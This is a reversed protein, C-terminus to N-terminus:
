QPQQTILQYDSVHSCCIRWICLSISLSVVVCFFWALWGVSDGAAREPLVPRLPQKIHEETKDQKTRDQQIIIHAAREAIMMVTAHTNGSVLNPMISSDAVRLGQVGYVRLWSDVVYDSTNGTGMRATGALHSLPFKDCRSRRFKEDGCRIFERLESASLHLGPSLEKTIIPQLHTQNLIRRIEPIITYFAEIEQPHNVYNYDIIPPQLPDASRLAISGRSAPNNNAIEVTVINEYENNYRNLIDEAFFTLQLDPRNLEPSSKFFGGATFGASGLVGFEEGSSELAARYQERQNECYESREGVTCTHFSYGSAAFSLLIKAGDMLNKGVAPADAVCEIHLRELEHKPGIGSLLLLKPTNVAGATLIIEKKATATFRKLQKSHLNPVQNPAILIYEVAYATSQKFLIRTAQSLTQRTFKKNKNLGLKSNKGFFAKAPTDRVGRNILFQYYGCGVRRHSANFDNLYNYGAQVCSSVFLDSIGDVTRISSLQLPGDTGQLPSIRLREDTQNISKSYYPLIKDFTWEAENWHDFDTDLGRVYIMANHASCGGLGKAVQPLNFHDDNNNRGDFQWEYTNALSHNNTIISWHAPIDFLTYDFLDVLGGGLESQLEAGAELLLVSYGALALRSSVISGSSGGGIVIYDYSSSDNGDNDHHHSSLLSSYSSSIRSLESDIDLDKCQTLLSASLLCLFSILYFFSPSLLM